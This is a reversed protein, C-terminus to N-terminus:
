TLIDGQINRLKTHPDWQTEVRFKGVLTVYKLPQLDMQTKTLSKADRMAIKLTDTGWVSDVLESLPRCKWNENIKEYMKEREEDYGQSAKIITYCNIYRKNLPRPM